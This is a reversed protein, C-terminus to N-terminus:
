GQATGDSSSAPHVRRLLVLQERIISALRERERFVTLMHSAHHMQAFDRHRGYAKLMEANLGPYQREYVELDRAVDLRDRTNADASTSYWDLEYGAHLALERTFERLTRSNGEQFPHLHDLDGYLQSLREACEDLALGELAAGGQLESLVREVRPGLDGGAYGIVYQTGEGELVRTKFHTRVQPRFEGPRHHALDQFIRRHAERLHAVDFRGNVPSEQLELIRASTLVGELAHPDPM